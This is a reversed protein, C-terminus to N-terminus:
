LLYLLHKRYALVTANFRSFVHFCESLIVFILGKMSLYLQFSIFFGDSFPSQFFNPFSSRFIARLTQYALVLFYIRGVNRVM